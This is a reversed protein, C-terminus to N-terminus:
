CIFLHLLYAVYYVHPFVCTSMFMRVHAFAIIKGIHKISYRELTRKVVSLLFISFQL